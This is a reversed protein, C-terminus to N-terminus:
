ILKAQRDAMEKDSIATSYTLMMIRGTESLKEYIANLKEIDRHKEEAAVNASLTQMTRM